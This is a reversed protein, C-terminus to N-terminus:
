KQANKHSQTKNYDVNFKSWYSELNECKTHEITVEFDLM